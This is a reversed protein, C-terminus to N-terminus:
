VANLWLLRLSFHYALRTPLSYLSMDSGPSAASSNRAPQTLSERCYQSVRQMGDKIQHLFPGYQSSAAGEHGSCSWPSTFAANVHCSEQVRGWLYGMPEFRGTALASTSM